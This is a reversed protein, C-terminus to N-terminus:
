FLAILWLFHLIILFVTNPEVMTTNVAVIGGKRDIVYDPDNVNIERQRM